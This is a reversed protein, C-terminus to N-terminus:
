SQIVEVVECTIQADYRLYQQDATARVPGYEWSLTEGVALLNSLVGTVPDPEHQQGDLLPCNRLRAMVADLVAPFETDSEDDGSAGFWVLWVDVQHVIQKNGGTPLSGQLARPVSLRTENGRSGWIYAAPRLAGDVNPNPPTIFAELLGADRPLPLEALAARLYAQVTNVPM